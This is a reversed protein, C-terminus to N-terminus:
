KFHRKKLGRLDKIQTQLNVVRSRLWSEAFDRAQTFSKFSNIRQRKVTNFSSEVTLYEGAAVKKVEASTDSFIAVWCCDKQAM